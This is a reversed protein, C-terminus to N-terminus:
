NSVIVAVTFMMLLQSDPSFELRGERLVGPRGAPLTSQLEGKELDQLLTVGDLFSTAMNVDHASM